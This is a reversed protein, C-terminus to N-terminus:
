RRDLRAPRRRVPGAVPETSIAGPRDPLIRYEPVEAVGHPPRVAAPVPLRAGCGLRAAGPADSRRRREADADAAGAATHGRAVAAPRTDPDYAVLRVVNTEAPLQDLPVRLNRWSPAPGIDIPTVRAAARRRRRRPRATGYEVECTSATPSSATRTSRASAARGRRHLPDARRRPTRDPRCRYWGTTLVRTDAAGAPLQRPGPHPAPDLGFPLAVTSGNVGGRGTGGGTGAAPARRRRRRTTPTSPTRAARTVIEEDATLDGAVGNPTFGERVDHRVRWRRDAATAPAAAAATGANPDTEVLVDNALACPTAPSPTSTPGARALVGPVARGRGQGAVAGRVAGDGRGRRDAASRRWCGPM